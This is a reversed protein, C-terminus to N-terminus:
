QGYTGQELGEILSWVVVRCSYVERLAIGAYEYKGVKSQDAGVGQDMAQLTEQVTWETRDLNLLEGLFCPVRHQVCEQSHWGQPIIDTSPQQSSKNQQEDALDPRPYSLASHVCELLLWRLVRTEEMSSERGRQQKRGDKACAHKVVTELGDEVVRPRAHHEDEGKLKGDEGDEREEGYASVTQHQDLSPDRFRM